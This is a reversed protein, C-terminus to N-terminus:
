INKINMLVDIIERPFLQEELEMLAEGHSFSRTRYSRNELLAVFVEVAAVIHTLPHIQENILGKPYGKGNKREHHDHIIRLIVSPVNPWVRQVNYVGITPHSHILPLDEKELPWKTILQKPWSVKGVDHLLTGVVLLERDKESYGLERAIKEALFAANISHQYLSEDWDQIASILLRMERHYHVLRYYWIGM